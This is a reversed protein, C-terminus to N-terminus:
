WAGSRSTSTHVYAEDTSACAVNKPRGPEATAPPRSIPTTAIGKASVKSRDHPSEGGADGQHALRAHVGLLVPLWVGLDVQSAQRRQFQRMM